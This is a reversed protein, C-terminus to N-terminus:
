YLEAKGPSGFFQMKEEVLRQGWERAAGFVKRPEMEAPNNQLYEKVGSTIAIKLDTGVNIKEVGSAMIELIVRDSLDSGGHLALAIPSVKRIKSLRPFDIKAEGKYLGHATGVAPALVDIGTDKIFGEVQLPDTFRADDDRVQLDDEKGGIRGLEGEVSCGHKHAYEVVKRTIAVNAAYPLHSGDIMVASFGVDIALKAVEFSKGHDLQLAIPIDNQEAATRVINAIYKAGAYNLASESVMVIVPSRLKNAANVVAQVDELNHVNFAGVSWGPSVPELIEKVTLLPM